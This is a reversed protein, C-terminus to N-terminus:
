FWGVAEDWAGQGWGRGEDRAPTDSEDVVAGGDGAAHLLGHPHNLSASNRM